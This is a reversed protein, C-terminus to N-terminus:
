HSWHFIIHDKENELVTTNNPFGNKNQLKLGLVSTRSNGAYGGRNKLSWFHGSVTESRFCLECNTSASISVTHRSTTETQVGVCNWCTCMSRRLQPKVAGSSQHLVPLDWDWSNGASSPAFCAKRSITVCILPSKLAVKVWKVSCWTEFVYAVVWM